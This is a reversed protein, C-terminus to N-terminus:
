TIVEPTGCDCEESGEIIGNGCVNDLSQFFSPNLDYLFATLSLNPINFVKTKILGQNSIPSGAFIHRFVRYSVKFIVKNIRHNNKSLM